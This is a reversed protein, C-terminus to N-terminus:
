PSTLADLWETLVTANAPIRTRVDEALLENYARVVLNRDKMLALAKEAQGGDLIGVELSCRVTERPSGAEVGHEELLFRQAGKWVAETALMFRLLLADRQVTSPEALDTLELLGGLARRAQDLREQLRDM